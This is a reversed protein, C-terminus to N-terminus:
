KRAKLRNQSPLRKMKGNKPTPGNLHVIGLSFFIAESEEYEVDFDTTNM